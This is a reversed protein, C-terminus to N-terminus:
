SRYSTKAEKISVFFGSPNQEITVKKIRKNTIPICFVYVQGGDENFDCKELWASYELCCYNIFDYIDLEESKKLLDEDLANGLLYNKLSINTLNLKLLIRNLYYKFKSNLIGKCWFLNGTDKYLPYIKRKFECRAQYYASKLYICEKKQLLCSGQELFPCGKEQGTKNMGAM